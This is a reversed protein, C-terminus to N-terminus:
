EKMLAQIEWASEERRTKEILIKREYGIDQMGQLDTV